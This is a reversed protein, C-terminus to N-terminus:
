SSSVGRVMTVYLIACPVRTAQRFQGYDAAKIACSFDHIVQGSALL